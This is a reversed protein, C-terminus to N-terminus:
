TLPIADLCEIGEDELYDDVVRARQPRGNDNMLVFNDGVAGAFPRVFVDLIGDRYCVGTLAGNQIVYLDTVGDFSIGGCVMVSPGGRRDNVAVCCKVFRKNKRADM